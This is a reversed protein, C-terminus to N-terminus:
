PCRNGKAVPQSPTLVEHPKFGEKNHKDKYGIFFM